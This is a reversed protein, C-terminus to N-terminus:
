WKICIGMEAHISLGLATVCSGQLWVALATTLSSQPEEQGAQSSDRHTVADERKEKLEVHDGYPEKPKLYHWAQTM